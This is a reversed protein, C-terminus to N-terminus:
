AALALREAAALAQGLVLAGADDAHVGDVKTYTTGQLDLFRFGGRGVLASQIAAKVALYDSAAASPAATDYPSAVSISASPLLARAIDFCAAAEAQVGSLGIDNVGMLIFAKAVTGLAKARNIDDAIRDALKYRTGSSTAVYGTGGAGSAWFNRLGLLEATCHVVGDRKTTPGPTAATLSDGLFLAIEASDDPNTATFGTDVNVARFSSTDQNEVTVIRDASSGFDLVVFSNAGLNTGVKDVYREEGGPTRVLFRYNAVTTGALSFAVRASTTRISARWTTGIVTGLSLTANPFKRYNTSFVESGGGKYSPVLSGSAFSYNVAMGAPNSVAATVTVTPPSVMAPLTHPTGLLAAAQYTSRLAAETAVWVGGGAILTAVAPIMAYEVAKTAKFTGAVLSTTLYRALDEVWGANILRTVSYVGSNVQKVLENAMVYPVGLEMLRQTLSQAM